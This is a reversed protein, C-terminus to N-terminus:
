SGSKIIVLVKVAVARQVVCSHLKLDIKQTKGSIIAFALPTYGFFEYVHSEDVEYAGVQMATAVHLADPPVHGCALEPTM